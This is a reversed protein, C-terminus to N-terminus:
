RLLVLVLQVLLDVEDALQELLDFLVFLIDGLHLSLCAQGVLCAELDLLELIAEVLLRSVPLAGLAMGFLELLLELVALVFDLAQVVLDTAEVVAQGSSLICLLAQLGVYLIQLLLDPLHFAGLEIAFKGESVFVLGDLPQVSLLLPKLAYDLRLVFHDVLFLPEDM